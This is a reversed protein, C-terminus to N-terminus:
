TKEDGSVLLDVLAQENIIKVGFQQAKIYKSSVKGNISGKSWDANTCLHTTGYVVSKHFIGGAQEILKVWEERSVSLHGTVCIRMGKLPKGAPEMVSVIKLFDTTETVRTM